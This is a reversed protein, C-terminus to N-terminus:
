AKGYLIKTHLLTKMETGFHTDSRPFKDCLSILKNTLSQYQNVIQKHLSLQKFICRISERKASSGKCLSFDDLMANIKACFAATRYNLQKTM